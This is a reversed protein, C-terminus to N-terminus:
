ANDKEKWLKMFPDDAVAKSKLAHPEGLAPNTFESLLASQPTLTVPGFTENMVKRMGDSFKQNTVGNEGVFEAPFWYSQGDFTAKRAEVWRERYLCLMKGTVSCTKIPLLKGTVQADGIPESRNNHYGVLVLQEGPEVSIPNEFVVSDLVKGKADRREVTFTGANRILPQDCASERRPETAKVQVYTTTVKVESLLDADPVVPWNDNWLVMAEKQRSQDYFRHMVITGPPVGDLSVKVLCDGPSSASLSLCNMLANDPIYAIRYRREVNHLM